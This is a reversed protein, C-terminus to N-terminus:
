GNPKPNKVLKRFYRNNFGRDAMLILFMILVGIPIIILAFRLILFLIDDPYGVSASLYGVHIFPKNTSFLSHTFIEMKTM